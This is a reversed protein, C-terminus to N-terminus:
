AALGGAGESPAVEAAPKVLRSGFDRLVDRELIQQAAERDGLAAGHHQDGLQLRL